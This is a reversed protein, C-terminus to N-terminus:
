IFSANSDHLSFPMATKLDSALSESPSSFNLFFFFFIAVSVWLLRSQTVSLAFFFFIFFYPSPSLSFLLMIDTRDKMSKDRLCEVQEMNHRCRQALPNWELIKRLFKLTQQIRENHM